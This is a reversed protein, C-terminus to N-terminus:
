AGFASRHAPYVIYPAPVFSISAVRLPTSEKWSSSSSPWKTRERGLKCTEAAPWSYLTFSTLGDIKAIKAHNCVCMEPKSLDSQESAQKNNSRLTESSATSANWRMNHSM